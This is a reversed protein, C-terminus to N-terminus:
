FSFLPLALVVLMSFVQAGGPLHASQLAIHFINFPTVSVKVILVDDKTLEEFTLMLHLHKSICFFHSRYIKITSDSVGAATKAKVFRPFVEEITAKSTTKVIRKRAM